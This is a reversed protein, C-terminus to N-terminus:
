DEPLSFWKNSHENFRVPYNDVSYRDPFISAETFSDFSICYNNKLCTKLLAELHDSYEQELILQNTLDIIESPKPKM